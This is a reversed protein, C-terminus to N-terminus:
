YRQKQSGNLRKRFYSNKSNKSNQTNGIVPQSQTNRIEWIDGTSTESIGSDVTKNGAANTSFLISIEVGLFIKKYLINISSFFIMKACFNVPIIRGFFVNTLFTQGFFFNTSFIQGFLFLDFFNPRFFNQGFM